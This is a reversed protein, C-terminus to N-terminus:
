AHPQRPRGLVDVVKILKDPPIEQYSFVSIRPRVSHLLQAVAERLEGRTVLAAAPAVSELRVALL